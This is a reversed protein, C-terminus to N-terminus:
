RGAAHPDPHKGKECERWVRRVTGPALDLHRAVDALNVDKFVIEPTKKLAWYHEVVRDTKSREDVGNASATRTSARHESSQERPTNAPRQAGRGRTNAPGNAATNARANAPHEGSRERANAASHESTNTSHEGGTNAPTNAGNTSHEDSHERPHEGRTNAGNALTRGPHEGGTNATNAEPHESHEGSTLPHSRDGTFAEEMQKNLLAFLETIEPDFAPDPFVSSRKPSREPSRDQEDPSREEAVEPSRDSRDESREQSRDEDLEQSRESSREESAEPSREPGKAESAMEPDTNTGPAGSEAADDPGNAPAGGEHTAGKGAAKKKPEEDAGKTAKKKPEEDAGKTAKKKPEDTAYLKATLKMRWRRSAVIRAQRYTAGTLGQRISLATFSIVPHFVFQAIVDLVAVATAGLTRWRVAIELRAETLTKGTRVHRVWLIFLHVMFPGAISLGGKVVGGLFDGDDQIAHFTNVFAAIGSFLWMARTWMASSRNLLVLVVAMLTCAWVVGETAIPTFTPLDLTQQIGLGSFDVTPVKMQARYFAIQTGIVVTAIVAAVGLVVVATFSILLRTALPLADDDTTAPTPPEDKALYARLVHRNRQAETDLNMAHAGEAKRQARRSRWKAPDPDVQPPDPAHHKAMEPEQNMPHHTRAPSHTPNRHTASLRACCRRVHHLYRWWNRLMALTLQPSHPLIRAMGVM